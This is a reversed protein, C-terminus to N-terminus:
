AGAQEPPEDFWDRTMDCWLALGRWPGFRAYFRAIKPDDCPRGRNRARAFKARVWSDLALVDYRGVLKLLNEAAYDGVGKVRKMERKLADTGLGSGLWSEPDLEGSAVREALEKLYASRYGARVVDRYFEVPREAMAEPTPFDRRGSPAERGLAAVLNAVMKITLAWTCNTTCISKVLDEFVTPSRLLRGAGDRAVWAFDPDGSVAEYFRGLDEDLRFMHRVDGVVRAAARKGLRRPTSVRLAARDGRIVAALPAGGDGPDLVRVLTRRDVFEFPALQCWGHSSLTREFDFGAPAPITIEM